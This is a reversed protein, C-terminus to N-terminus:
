HYCTLARTLRQPDTPFSSLSVTVDGEGRIKWSLPLKRVAFWWYKVIVLM